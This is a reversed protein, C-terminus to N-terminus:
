SEDGDDGDDGPPNRHKYAVVSIAAFIAVPPCLLILTSLNLTWASVADLNSATAKCMACQALVDPALLTAGAVVLAPLVILNRITATTM